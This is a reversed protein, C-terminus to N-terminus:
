KGNVSEFRKVENEDLIDLLKEKHGSSNLLLSLLLIIKDLKYCIREFKFNFIYIIFLALIFVGGLDLFDKLQRFDIM